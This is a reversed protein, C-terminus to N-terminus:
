RSLWALAEEHRDFRRDALATFISPRWDGSVLTLKRHTLAAGLEVWCGCSTSSPLVLWFLEARRVADLDVSAHTVRDSELLDRDTRGAAASERVARTWDHTVHLGVAELCAIYGAVLEVEASAGAVYISTM